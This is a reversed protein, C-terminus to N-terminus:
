EYLIIYYIINYKSGKLEVDQIRGQNGEQIKGDPIRGQNGEQIKGDPIKGQNGEQIKVNREKKVFVVVV